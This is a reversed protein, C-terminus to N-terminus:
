FDTRVGFFGVRSLLAAMMNNNIWAYVEVHCSFNDVNEENAFCIILTNLINQFIM